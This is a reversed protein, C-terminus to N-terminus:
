SRIGVPQEPPTFSLYDGFHLVRGRVGAIESPHLTVSPGDLRVHDARGAVWEDAPLLTSALRNLGRNFYHHPLCIKARCRELIEDAQDYTLIHRSGDIPLLAVDIEGIARWVSEPPDPRNDGWHMIRLGGAEIILINNDFSRPNDPPRVTFGRSELYNGVDFLCGSFDWVHKDAIGRIAVDAFRFEGAIRDLLMSASLLHLADHDFHAHTSLGIDVEMTPLRHLYWQGEAGGPLNRWPDIFLTLGALTTVRFASGGFFDFIVKGPALVISGRDQLAMVHNHNEGQKWAWPGTDQEAM